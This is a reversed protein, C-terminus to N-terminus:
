IQPQDIKYYMDTTETGDSETCCPGQSLDGHGPSKERQAPQFLPLDGNKSM